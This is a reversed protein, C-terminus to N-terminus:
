PVLQSVARRLRDPSTLRRALQLASLFQLPIVVFPERLGFPRVVLPEHPGPQNVAPPQRLGLRKVALISQHPIM